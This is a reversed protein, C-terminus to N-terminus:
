QVSYVGVLIKRFEDIKWTGDMYVLKVNRKVSCKYSYRDAKYRYLEKFPRGYALELLIQHKFRAHDTQLSDLDSKSLFSNIEYTVECDLEHSFFIPLIMWASYGNKVDVNSHKDNPNLESQFGNFGNSPAVARQCRPSFLEWAKKPQKQDIYLLYDEIYRKPLSSYYWYMLSYLIALGTVVLITKRYRQYFTRLKSLILDVLDLNLNVTQLWSSIQEM